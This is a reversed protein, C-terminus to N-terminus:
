AESGRSRQDSTEEKGVSDEKEEMTEPEDSLVKGTVKIRARKRLLLLVLLVIIGVGACVGVAIAM